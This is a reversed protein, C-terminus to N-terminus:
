KEEDKMKIVSNINLVVGQLFTKTDNTISGQYMLVQFANLLREIQSDLYEKQEKTM